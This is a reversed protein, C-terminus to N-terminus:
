RTLKERPAPRWRRAEDSAVGQVLGITQAERADIVRGTALLAQAHRPGVADAIYPASIAPLLGLKLEPFGFRADTTALAMDCAAALGVGPGFADGEVLAVTM